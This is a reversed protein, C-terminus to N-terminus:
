TTFISRPTPVPRLTTADLVATSDAISKRRATMHQDLEESRQGDAEHPRGAANGSGEAEGRRKASTPTATGAPVPARNCVQKFELATPSKSPPLNDLAFRISDPANAFRGLEHAWDAKVAHIDLGDWRGLFDRGYVLALKEFIRDIWESPLQM